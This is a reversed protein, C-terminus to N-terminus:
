VRDNQISLFMTIELVPVAQDFNLTKIGLLQFRFLMLDRKTRWGALGFSNGQDADLLNPAVAELYEGAKYRLVQKGPSASLIRAREERRVQVQYVGNDLFQALLYRLHPLEHWRKGGTLGIARTESHTIRCRSRVGCTPPRVTTM